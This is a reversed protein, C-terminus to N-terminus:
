WKVSNIISFVHITKEKFKTKIDLYFDIENTSLEKSVDQVLLIIDAKEAEELSRKIGEKEVLNDTKRIGATDVLTFYNMKTYIGAEISDRTTGEIPTVIARNTKLLANFLSSKGANVSGIIAIRLGEKIQQQSLFSNKLTDIKKSTIEIEDKIQDKFEIGEEDLFEFSGECLALCKILSREIKQIWNSLSGELQSLSNKLAQQTHAHILDNIAEAQMLDIKNNLFSRKAFEGNEALRAGNEIALSIIEEIIFPNNHCSIELVNEGTFTKPGHMIFFMVQDIIKSEKSILGFHITHTQLDELKLTCFNSAIKFCDKGSLRIVCIAGSGKPTCQAVITENEHGM